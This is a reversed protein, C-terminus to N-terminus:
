HHTYALRVAVLSFTFLLAFRAQVIPNVNEKFKSMRKSFQYSILPAAILNACRLWSSHILSTPFFALSIGGIAGGLFIFLVGLLVNVETKQSTKSTFLDIPLELIVQAVVEVFFQIVIILLEEM